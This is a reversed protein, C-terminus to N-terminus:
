ADTEELKDYVENERRNMDRVSIVRISKERIAFAVFLRRGAGTQGLAYEGRVVIPAHFFVDEATKRWRM